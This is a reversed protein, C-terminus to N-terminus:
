NAGTRSLDRFYEDVLRRFEASVKDDGSMTATLAEAKDGDKRLEFELEKLAAILAAQRKLVAGPDQYADAQELKRLAAVLTGIDRARHDSRDLDTSLAELDARQGRFDRQFGTIDEIGFRGGGDAGSAGAQASAGAADKAKGSGRARRALREQLSEMNRVLDRLRELRRARPADGAQDLTTLAAALRDSLQDFAMGIKSELRLLDKSKFDKLAAASREIRQALREERMSRTADRLMRASTQRQERASASLRELDSELARTEQTMHAKREQLATIGESREEADNSLARVGATVDRQEAALRRTRELAESVGRRLQAHKERDAAHGAERLRELAAQADALARASGASDAARRMAEAAERAQNMMAELKRDPQERSLRELHRVVKELEEALARQSSDSGAPGASLEARRRLRELERQQRRALERLKELTDDLAQASAAQGHQLSEYQSRLKDLELKFLNALDQAESSNAGQGASGARAVQLDRFAAEARQLHRLAKRAPALAAHPDREALTAETELMAEVAQPLEQVMRQLSEDAQMLTREGLRRIIAEVRDRIRAESRALFDVTEVFRDEKYSQRDRALNFTAIVLQRQQESLLRENHGQMGAGSGGQAQRFTLHFPRVEMFYIDTTSQQGEDTVSDSARAYYAILDGPGLRLDELFLTHVTTLEQPRQNQEHLSLTQEPGGNISYVLELRAIGLDDSATLEILPEEVSTVRSDRGPSSIHVTPARDPSLEIAYNPSARVLLDDGYPLDIRYHGTQEIDLSASWTGDPRALLPRSERGNLVLAGGSVPLSPTVKIDVRTGRVANIDGGGVVQKPPLGTYRPYHYTLDIRRVTPLDAVDIRYVPSRLGGAQVYYEGGDNLDFLFTEFAQVETGATMNSAQWATAGGFRTVLQVADPEFGEVRAVILQNSGRSVRVDGPAVSLRYPSAATSIGPLLSKLGYHLGPPLLAMLAVVAAITVGLVLGARHLAQRELRRGHDIDRSARLAQEMLGTELGPGTSRNPITKLEVASALAMALSPEGEEVYLALRTDSVRQLLPVGVFLALAVAIVVYSVGRVATVLLPAYQWADMVVAATIAVSSAIAIFGALRWLVRRLRWRMRVTHLLQVIEAPYQPRM